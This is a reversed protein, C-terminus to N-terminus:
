INAGKRASHLDGCADEKLYYKGPASRMVASLAGLRLM